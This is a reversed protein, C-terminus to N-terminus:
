RWVRTLFGKNSVELQRIKRNAWALRISLEMADELLERYIKTKRVLRNLLRM